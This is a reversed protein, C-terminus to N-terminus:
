ADSLKVVTMASAQMSLTESSLHSEGRFDLVDGAACRVIGVATGTAWDGDDPNINPNIQVAPCQNGNRYLMMQFSDNSGGLSMGIAVLVLYLGPETITFNSDAVSAQVLGNTESAHYWPFLTFSSTVLTISPDGAVNYMMAYAPKM